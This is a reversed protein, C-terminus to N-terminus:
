GYNNEITKGDLIYNFELLYDRFNELMFFRWFVDLLGGDLLSLLVKWGWNNLDM